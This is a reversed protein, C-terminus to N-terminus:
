LLYQKITQEVTNVNIPRSLTEFTAILNKGFWYGNKRYEEIRRIANNAYEQNDMMGFHEWAFEKRTRINLCYFDPHVIHGSIFRIPYEYRYAVGMKLLKNAIIIESKSRVREGADTYYEPYGDAFAKKEYDMNRWVQAYEEDSRFVSHVLPKRLQHLDKYVREIGEPHYKELCNNIVELQQKIEIVIKQDYDKQALEKVLDMDSKKIYKGKTDKPETRHYYQLYQGRQSIRLTGCPAQSIREKVKSLLEELEKKKDQM